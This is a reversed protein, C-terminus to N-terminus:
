RITKTMPLYWVFYVFVFVLAVFIGVSTLLFLGDRTRFQIDKKKKKTSKAPKAGSMKVGVKAKGPPRSRQKGAVRRRNHTSV